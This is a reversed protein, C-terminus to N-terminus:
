QNRCYCQGPFEEFATKVKFRTNVTPRASLSLSALPNDANGSRLDDHNM